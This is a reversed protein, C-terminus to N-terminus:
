STLIERRYHSPTKGSYKKFYKGFTSPDPFNLNYAVESISTSADQLLIKAELILLEQLFHSASKGTDRKVYESLKKSTIHLQDAYFKVDRQSTIHNAALMKFKHTISSFGLNTSKNKLHLEDIMFHLISIQQRVLNDKNAYDSHIFGKLTEYITEICEQDKKNLNYVPFDPEEYYSKGNLINSDSFAAVLFEKTFFITDAKASKYTQTWKRIVNPGMTILAPAKIDHDTLGTSLFLQGQKVYAIGFTETRYPEEPYNSTEVFEKLFYGNHEFDVGIKNKFDQIKHRIINKM